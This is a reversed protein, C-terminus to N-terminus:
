LTSFYYKIRLLFNNISYFSIMFLNPKSKIYGQMTMHKWNFKKLNKYSYSENEEAKKADLNCQKVVLFAIHEIEVLLHCLKTFVLRYLSIGIPTKYPICYAWFADKLHLSWDKQNPNVMKELINKIEQNSVETQGNTKPHFTTAM